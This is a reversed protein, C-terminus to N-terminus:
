GKYTSIQEMKLSFNQYFNQTLESLKEIQKCDIHEIIENIFNNIIKSVDKAILMKKLIVILDQNETEIKKIEISCDNYLDKILQKPEQDKLPM